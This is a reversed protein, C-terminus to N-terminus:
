PSILSVRRKEVVNTKYIESAPPRNAFLYYNGFTDTLGKEKYQTATIAYKELGNLTSVISGGIWNLLNRPFISEKVKFQNKLNALKKFEPEDLLEIIEEELREIFGPIMSCGGNVIIKGVLSKRTDIDCKLLAKLVAAALNNEDESYSGFFVNDPLFRQRLTM